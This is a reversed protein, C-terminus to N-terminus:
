YVASFWCLDEVALVKSKQLSVIRSLTEVDLYKEMSPQNLDTWYLSRANIQAKQQGDVNKIILIYWLLCSCGLIKLDYIYYEWFSTCLNIEQTKLVHLSIPISTCIQFDGKIYFYCGSFIAIKISRIRM